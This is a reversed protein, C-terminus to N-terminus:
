VSVKAFSGLYVFNNHSLPLDSWQKKFRTVLQTQTREALIANNGRYKKYAYITLNLWNHKLNESKTESSVLAKKASIEIWWSLICATGNPKGQNGLLM